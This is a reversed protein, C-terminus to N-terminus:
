RPNKYMSDDDKWGLENKLLNFLERNHQRMEDDPKQFAASKLWVLREYVGEHTLFEVDDPGVEMHRSTAPVAFKGLKPRWWELIKDIEEELYPYRSTLDKKNLETM